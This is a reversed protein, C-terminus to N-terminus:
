SAPGKVSGALSWGVLREAILADVLPDDTTGWIDNGAHVFLGGRAGQGNPPLLWEWDVPRREPGIGTLARAGPLMPNHGRGYFGAVGMQTQQASAPIGAFVPHPALRELELDARRQRPLPVYPEQGSIFPCLLHGNFVIRGGDALFDEIAARRTAFDVQDLAGTLILGSASQLDEHSLDIQRRVSLHGIEIAPLLPAGPPGDDSVILLTGRRRESM